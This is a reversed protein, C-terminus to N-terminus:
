RRRVSRESDAAVVGKVRKSSKVAKAPPAFRFAGDETTVMYMTEPLERKKGFAPYETRTLDQGDDRPDYAIGHHKFGNKKLKKEVEMLLDYNDICYSPVESRREYQQFFHPRVRWYIMVATGLSCRRSRIAQFLYVYGDDWNYQAVFRHLAKPSLAGIRRVEERAGAIEGQIRASAEEVADELIPSLLAEAREDAFGRVLKAVDRQGRGESLAEEVAAEIEKRLLGRVDEGRLRELFEIHISGLLRKQFSAPWSRPVVQRLSRRWVSEFGEAFDAPWSEPLARDTTAEVLARIWEERREKLANEARRKMSDDANRRITCRGAAGLALGISVRTAARLSLASLMEPSGRAHAACNLFAERLGTEKRTDKARSLPISQPSPAGASGISM